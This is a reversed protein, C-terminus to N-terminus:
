PSFPHFAGLGLMITLAIEFSFAANRNWWNVTESMGIEVFKGVQQRIARYTGPETSERSLVECLQFWRVPLTAKRQPPERCSDMELSVRTTPLFKIGYPPLASMGIGKNTLMRCNNEAGLPWGYKKDWAGKEQRWFLLPMYFGEWVKFSELREKAKCKRQKM